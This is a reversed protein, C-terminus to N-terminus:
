RRRVTVFLVSCTGFARVLRPSYCGSHVILRARGSRIALYTGIGRASNVAVRALVFSDSSSPLAADEQTIHMQLAQGVELTVSGAPIVFQAACNGLSIVHGAVRVMAAPACTGTGAKDWWATAGTGCASLLSITAALSIVAPWRRM